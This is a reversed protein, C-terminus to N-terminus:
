WRCGSRRRTSATRARDPGPARRPLLRQRLHVRDRHRRARRRGALAEVMRRVGDDVSLLSEIRCRYRRQITPSRPIPSRRWRSSRRRSTPSTPRTSTRRCRCRSALRVLERAAAGAQGLEPLQDAPQPNPNPGGGHPATYMVGLFFPGGPANRNIADVAMDTFVDQKFDTVAAGFNVLSGNRNLSTTTSRSPPAPPPRTGSTGARRCTPPPRQCGRRLREPVQRHPDDPLRGGPALGAAHQRRRLPRLGRRAARQRARRPQARVPRHLLDRALPLLAALQHLQQRLHRRARRAGVPGHPMLALSAQTQDDTMVVIVNPPPADGGGGQASAPSGTGAVAGLCAVAAAVVGAHRLARMSRLLGRGRHFDRRGRRM